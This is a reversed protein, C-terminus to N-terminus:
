TEIEHLLDVDPVHNMGHTAANISMRRLEGRTQASDTILARGVGLPTVKVGRILLEHSATVPESRLIAGEDHEFAGAHVPFRNVM